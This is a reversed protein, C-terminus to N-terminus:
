DMQGDQVAEGLYTRSKTEAKMDAEIETIMEEKYLHAFMLKQEETLDTNYSWKSMTEGWKTKLTEDDINENFWEAEKFVEKALEADFTTYKARKSLTQNFYARARGDEGGPGVFGAIKEDIANKIGQNKYIKTRDIKALKTTTKNEGTGDTYVEYQVVDDAGAKGSPKKEVFEDL